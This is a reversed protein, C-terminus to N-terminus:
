GREIGLISLNIEATGFLVEVSVVKDAELFIPSNPFLLNGDATFNLTLLRKGDYNIVLLTRPQIGAPVPYWAPSTSCLIATLWTQKATTTTFLTVPTTAKASITGNNVQVACKEIGYMNLHSRRFMIGNAIALPISSYGTYGNTGLTANNYLGIMGELSCSVLDGTERFEYFSPTVTGFYTKTAGNNHSSCYYITQGTNVSTLSGSNNLSIITSGAISVLMHSLPTHVISYTTSGTIAAGLSTVTAAGTAAKYPANTQDFLVVQTASYMIMKSIYNTAVPSNLAQTAFTVTNTTANYTGYDLQWTYNPTSFAGWGIVIVGGFSDINMHQNIAGTATRTTTTVAVNDTTPDIAYCYVTMTNTTTIACGVFSNGSIVTIKGIDGVPFLMSKIYQYGTATKKYILSFQSAVANPIVVVYDNLILTKAYSPETSFYSLATPNVLTQQVLIKPTNTM